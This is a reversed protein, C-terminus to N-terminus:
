RTKEIVITWFIQVPYCLFIPVAFIFFNQIFVTSVWRAGGANTFAFSSGHLMVVAFTALINLLDMYYFRKKM